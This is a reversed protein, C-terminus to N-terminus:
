SRFLTQLDHQDEQSIYFDIYSLGTITDTPGHGLIDSFYRSKGMNEPAFLTYAIEAYASRLDKVAPNKICLCFLKKVRESLYKSCQDHFSAMNNIWHPRGDRLVNLREILLNAPCLIPIALPTFSVERTKLQGTFLVVCPNDTPKFSATCAIESIRRGTLFALYLTSDIHASFPLCTIADRIMRDPHTLPRLARHESSVKLNYDKKINASTEPDLTFIGLAKTLLPDELVTRCANRCHTYLRKRTLPNPYLEVLQDRQEKCYALARRNNELLLSLNKEFDLM